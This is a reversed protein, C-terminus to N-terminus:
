SRYVGTLNARTQVCEIAATVLQRPKPADKLLGHPTLGGSLKLDRLQAMWPEAMVHSNPLPKAM